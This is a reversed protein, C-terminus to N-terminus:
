LIGKGHIRSEREVCVCLSISFSFINTEPRLKKEVAGRCKDGYKLFM